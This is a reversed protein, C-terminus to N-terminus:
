RVVLRLITLVGAISPRSMLSAVVKKKFERKVSQDFVTLSLIKKMCLWFGAFEKLALSQGRSVAHYFSSVEGESFILGSGALADNMAKVRSDAYWKKNKTKTAQDGHRRYDLVVDPVNGMRVNKLSLRMWLHMDEIGQFDKQYLNEELVARKALITPHAFTDNLTWISAKIEADTEPYIKPKDLGIGFRNIGGGVIDLDNKILYEFQKELRSPRSIDDADMRAIYRGSAHRLSENLTRVIGRNEQSFVKVRADRRRYEELIKLSADTSGDDVAIVEIDTYSQSLLSEMAQRLFAEGNYVPMLISILRGPM